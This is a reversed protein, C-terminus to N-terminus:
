EYNKVMRFQKILNTFYEIIKQLQEKIQQLLESKHPNGCDCLDDEVTMLSKRLMTRQEKMRKEQEEYASPQAHHPNFHRKLQFILKEFAQCIERKRLEQQSLELSIAMISNELDNHRSLISMAAPSFEGCQKNDSCLQYLAQYTQTYRGNIYHEEILKLEIIIEQM